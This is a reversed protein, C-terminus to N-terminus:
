KEEGGKVPKVQFKKILPIAEGLTLELIDGRDIVEWYGDANVVKFKEIAEYKGPDQLNAPLVSFPFIESASDPRLRVLSGVPIVVPPGARIILYFSKIVKWIEDAETSGCELIIEEKKDM